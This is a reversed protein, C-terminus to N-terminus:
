KLDQLQQACLSSSLLPFLIRRWCNQFQPKHLSMWFALATSPLFAVAAASAGEAPVLAAAVVLSMTAQLWARRTTQDGRGDDNHHDNVATVLPSLSLAASNIRRPSCSSDILLGQRAPSFAGVPSAAPVLIAALPLAFISPMMM